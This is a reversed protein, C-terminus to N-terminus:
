FFCLLIAYEELIEQWHCVSFTLFSASFLIFSYNKSFDIIMKMIKLKYNTLSLIPYSAFLHTLTICFIFFVLLRVKFIFNPLTIFRKICKMIFILLYFCQSFIFWIRMLILMFLSGRLSSISSWPYISYLMLFGSSTSTISLVRIKSFFKKM